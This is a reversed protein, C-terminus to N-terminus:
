GNHNEALDSFAFLASGPDVQVQAPKVSCRLFCCMFYKRLPFPGKVLVRKQIIVLATASVAAAAATVDGAKASSSAAFFHISESNWGEVSDLSSWIFSISHNMLAAAGNLPMSILVTESVRVVCSYSDFVSALAKSSIVPMLTLCSMMWSPSTTSFIWVWICDPLFTYSAQILSESKM